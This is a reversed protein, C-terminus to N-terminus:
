VNRRPRPPRRPPHPFHTRSRGAENVYAAIEFRTRLALKELINHVHSKVTDTVIELRGAIEKNRLGDAILEMVERERKSLRAARASRGVSEHAIYSFLASAFPPPIVKANGAVSRVTAVIEDITARKAVLGAAGAKVFAVVDEEVPLLDIVIVRVEPATTRMREVFRHSIRNGVSAGVLVVDPRADRVRLLGADVGEVAAVVTCGPQADLLAALRDRALRNDEIVLVQIAKEM